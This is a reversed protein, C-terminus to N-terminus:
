SMSAPRRRNRAMRALSLAARSTPNDSWVVETVLLSAVQGPRLVVAQKRAHPGCVPVARCWGAPLGGWSTLIPAVGVASGTCWSCWRDVTIRLVRQHEGRICDPHRVVLGALEVDCTTAMVLSPPPPREGEVAYFGCTCSPELRTHGSPCWFTAEAAYPVEPHVVGALAASTGSRDLVLQALKRGPLPTTSLLVPPGTPEPPERRSAM